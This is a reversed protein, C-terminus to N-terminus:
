PLLQLYELSILILFLCQAKLLQSITISSLAATFPLCKPFSFKDFLVRDLRLVIVNSLLLYSLNFLRDKLSMMGSTKEDEVIINQYSFNSNFAFRFDKYRYSVRPEFSPSIRNYRIENMYRSENANSHGDALTSSFRIYSYDLGIKADLSLDGWNRIINTGLYGDLKELSVRQTIHNDNQDFPLFILPSPNFTVNEPQRTYSTYSLLRFYNDSLKIINDFLNEVRLNTRSSQQYLHDGFSLISTADKNDSFKLKLTNKFYSNDTNHEYVIRPRLYSSTFLANENQAVSFVQDEVLFELKNEQVFEKQDYYADINVKIDGKNLSTIYNTSLSHSTNFNYDEYEFLSNTFLRNGLLYNDSPNVIDGYDFYEYLNVADFKL